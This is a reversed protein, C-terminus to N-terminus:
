TCHRGNGHRHEPSKSGKVSQWFEIEAADTQAVAGTAPTLLAGALMLVSLFRKM